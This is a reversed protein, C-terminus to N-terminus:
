LGLRLLLAQLERPTTAALAAATAVDEAPMGAVVRRARGAAESGRVEALLETTRTRGYALLAFADAMDKVRKDDGQRGPFAALKMALLDADDPLSLRPSVETLPTGGKANVTALHPEDAPVFGLVKRCLPHQHDVMLDVYLPFVFHRPTRAADAPRLPEGTETHFERYLRFGQGQFGLRETLERSSRVLSSDQLELEGWGPEVHFGLDIDRSYAYERGTARRFAERVSFWVAWGGILWVPDAAVRLVRELHARSIRTEHDAYTLDM